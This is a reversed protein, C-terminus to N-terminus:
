AIGARPLDHVHLIGVPRGAADIVALASIPRDSANMWHLVKGALARLGAAATGLVARAVDRDARATAVTATM